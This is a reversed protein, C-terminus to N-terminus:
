SEGCQKTIGRWEGACEFAGENVEFLVAVAFVWGFLAPHIRTFIEHAVIPESFKSFEEAGRLLEVGCVEIYWQHTGVFRRAGIADFIEHLRTLPDRDILSFEARGFAASKSKHAGGVVNQDNPDFAAGHERGAEGFRIRALPCWVILRGM